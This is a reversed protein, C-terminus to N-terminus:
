HTKKSRRYRRFARRLAENPPPPNLLAEFFADRDRNSLVIREYRDIEEDAASVVSSLVFETISKRALAAANEIRKKTVRDLRLYIREEKTQAQGM